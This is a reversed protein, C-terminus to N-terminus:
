RHAGTALAATALRVVAARYPQFAAGQPLIALVAQAADRIEARRHGEPRELVAELQRLERSWGLRASLLRRDAELM